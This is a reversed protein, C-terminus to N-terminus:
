PKADAGNPAGNPTDGAPGAERERRLAAQFLELQRRMQASHRMKECALSQQKVAAAFDGAAYHCRGLTDLYIPFDPRLELSRQSLRVAKAYDGFTNAVLWAAQNCQSALAQRLADSNAAFGPIQPQNALQQEVNDINQFDRRTLSEIKARVANSWEQEQGPLRYSAILVDIDEDDNENCKDLMKRAEAHENREVHFMAQFYYRRCRLFGASVGMGAIQREVNADNDMAAVLPELVSAARQYNLQGDHLTDAYLRRAEVAPPSNEPCLRLREDFERYAWDFLGREGLAVATQIHEDHAEPNLRLAADATQNAEEVGGRRLQSEALRYQLVPQSAFQPAFQTALEEVQEWLQHEGLWDVTELLSAPTGDVLEMMRRTAALAQERRGAHDLLEVQWRSLDRILDLGTRSPSTAQTQRERVVLQEIAEFADTAQTLVRQYIRLWDAGPRRSPGLTEEILQSTAARDEDHIPLRMVLLAARKSLPAATEYRALRCLAAIRVRGEFGAALRELRARREERNQEGYENLLQRLEGPDGFVSWEVQASHLLYRARRSIELDPDAVAENLLDFADLGMAALSAQAQERIAFDDDGLQAILRRLKDEQEALQPPADPAQAAAREWAWGCLAAGVGVALTLALSPSVRAVTCRNM